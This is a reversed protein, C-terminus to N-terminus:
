EHSAEPDLWAEVAEPSGWAEEPAHYDIVRVVAALARMSQPHATAVATRLDNQLVARLFSGTPIRQNFYRDLGELLERPVYATDAEWAAPDTTPDPFVKPV